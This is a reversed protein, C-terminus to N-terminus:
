LFPFFPVLLVLEGGAVHLAALEDRMFGAVAAVHLLLMRWCRCCVAAVHLARAACDVAVAYTFVCVGPTRMLRQWLRQQQAAQPPTAAAASSM